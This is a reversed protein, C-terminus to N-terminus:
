DEMKLSHLWLTVSLLTLPVVDNEATATYKHGSCKIKDVKKEFLGSETHVAEYHSVGLKLSHSLGTHHLM